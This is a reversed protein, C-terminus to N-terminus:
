IALLNFHIIQNKNVLKSECMSADHAYMHIQIDNFAIATTQSFTIKSRSESISPSM